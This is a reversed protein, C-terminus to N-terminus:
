TLAIGISLLALKEHRRTDSTILGFGADVLQLLDTLGGPLLRVRSNRKRWAANLFGTITQGYHNDAFSSSERSQRRAVASM